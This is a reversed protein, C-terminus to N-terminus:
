PRWSRPVLAARTRASISSMSSRRPSGVGSFFCGAAASAGDAPPCPCSPWATPAPSRRRARRDRGRRARGSGRSAGARVACRRRYAASRARYLDGAGADPHRRRRQRAAAPDVGRAGAPSPHLEARLAARRAGAGGHGPLYIPESRRALKELSAMYDSMAGDPPAVISTSWAMVHDGSFILDAERFAYAMHNATHGPTTLAEITWGDGTVVEGDALAVDPRFDMDAAPTSGAPRASICRGRWGTRARPTFRRAPRRRSRRCRRRITAIPIPSSFTPSPKAACPMSCRPSMPTTTRSRSRPDRGQRPRRHLEGHGQLHVARSQQRRDRARRAGRRRRPGPELDFTKNYRIDDSM